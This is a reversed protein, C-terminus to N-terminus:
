YFLTDQYRLRMTFEWFSLPREALDVRTGFEDQSTAKMVLYYHQPLALDPVIKDEPTNQATESLETIGHECVFPFYVVRNWEFHTLVSILFLSLRCLHWVLLVTACSFIRVCLFTIVGLLLCCSIIKSLASVLLISVSCYLSDIFCLSSEKVFDVLYM